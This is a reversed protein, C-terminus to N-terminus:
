RAGGPERMGRTRVLGVLLGVTGGIAAGGVIAAPITVECGVCSDGSGREQIAMLLVVGAVTGGGILAGRLVHRGVERSREGTARPVLPLRPTLRPGPVGAPGRWQAGAGRPAGLSLAIVMAVIALRVVVSHKM